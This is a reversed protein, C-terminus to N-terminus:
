RAVLLTFRVLCRFECACFLCTHSFTGLRLICTREKLAKRNIGVVQFHSGAGGLHILLSSIGTAPHLRSPYIHARISHQITRHICRYISRHDCSPGFNSENREIHSYRPPPDAFPLSSVKYIAALRAKHTSLTATLRSETQSNVLHSLVEAQHVVHCIQSSIRCIHTTVSVLVPTVQRRRLWKLWLHIM